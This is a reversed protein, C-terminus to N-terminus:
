SVSKKSIAIVEKGEKKKKKKEEESFPANKSM